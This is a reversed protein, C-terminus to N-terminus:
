KSRPAVEIEAYEPLADPSGGARSADIAADLAADENPYLAAAELDRTWWSGAWYAIHDGGAARIVFM